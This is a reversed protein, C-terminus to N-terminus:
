ESMWGLLALLSVCVSAVVVAPRELQDELRTLVGGLAHAGRAVGVSLTKVVLRDEFWDSLRAATAAFGGVLGRGSAFEDASADLIRTPGIRREEWGALSSLARVAPAPLGAARDVVAADFRALDAAFRETPAVLTQRGLDELWGRQLAATYLRSASALWEPVPRTRGGHMQALISPATLFQYGRWSGHAVLHLAAVTTWGLGCEATMLGLQGM